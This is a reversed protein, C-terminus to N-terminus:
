ATRRFTDIGPSKERRWETHRAVYDEVSGKVGACWDDFMALGGPKVLKMWLCDNAVAPATHEGDVFLLDIGRHPPWTPLITRSYGPMVSILDDVGHERFKARVETLSSEYHHAGNLDDPVDVQGTIFVPDITYIHGSGAAKRGYALALTSNGLNCGIEVIIARAPLDRSVTYLQGIFDARGGPILSIVRLQETTWATVNM